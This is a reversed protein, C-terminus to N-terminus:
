WYTELAAIAMPWTWVKALRRPIKPSGAALDAAIQDFGQALIEMDQNTYPTWYLETSGEAYEFMRSPYSLLVPRQAALATALALSRGPSDTYWLAVCAYGALREVEDETARWHDPPCVTWGRRGAAQELYDVGEKRITTVGITKPLVPRAPAVAPVPYPFYVSRGPFAQKIPSLIARAQDLGEPVGRYTHHVFVTAGPWVPEGMPLTGSDWNILVKEFVPLLPDNWKAPYVDHGARVLALRFDRGWNAVGCAGNASNGWNSVLGVRM